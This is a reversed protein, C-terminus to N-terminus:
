KSQAAKWVDIMIDFSLQDPHQPHCDVGDHMHEHETGAVEHWVKTLPNKENWLEYTNRIHMGYFHHMSGVREESMEKLAKVDAASLKNVLDAVIEERTLFM